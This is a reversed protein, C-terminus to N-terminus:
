HGTVGTRLFRMGEESECVGEGVYRISEFYIGVYFYTKVPSLSRPSTGPTECMGSYWQVM